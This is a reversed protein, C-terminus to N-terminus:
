SLCRVLRSQFAYLVKGKNDPNFIVNEEFHKVKDEVSSNNQVFSDTDCM